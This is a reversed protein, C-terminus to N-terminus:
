PFLQLADSLIAQVLDEYAQLNGLSIQRMTVTEAQAIM